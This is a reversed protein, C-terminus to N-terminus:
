KRLSLAVILLTRLADKSVNLSAASNVITDAVSDISDSGALANRVATLAAADQLRLETHLEFFYTTQKRDAFDEFTKLNPVGGTGLPGIQNGAKKVSSRKATMRYGGLPQIIATVLSQSGRADPFHVPKRDIRWRVKNGCKTVAVDQGTFGAAASHADDVAREITTV